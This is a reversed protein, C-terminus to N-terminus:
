GLIQTDKSTVADRVSGIKKEGLALGVLTSVFSKGVSMSLFREPATFNARTGLPWQETSSSAPATRGVAAVAALALLGAFALVELRARARARRARLPPSPSSRSDTM